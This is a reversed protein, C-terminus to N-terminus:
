RILFLHNHQNLFFDGVNKKWGQRGSPGFMGAADFQFSKMCDSTVKDVLMFGIQKGSNCSDCSATSFQKNILGSQCSRLKQM